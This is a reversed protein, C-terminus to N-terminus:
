TLIKIQGIIQNVVLFYLGMLRLLAKYKTGVLLVHQVLITLMTFM